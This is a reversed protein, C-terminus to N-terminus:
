IRWRGGRAASRLGPGLDTATSRRVSRCPPPELSWLAEAPPRLSLYRAALKTGGGHRFIEYRKAVEHQTDIERISNLLNRRARKLASAERFNAFKYEKELHHEEVVHWGHGLQETLKRLDDGKLPARWGDHNVAHWGDSLWLRHDRYGGAAIFGLVDANSIPRSALEFPQVIV